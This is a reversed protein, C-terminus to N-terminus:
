LADRNTQGLKLSLYRGHKHFPSLQSYFLGSDKKEKNDDRFREIQAYKLLKKNEISDM